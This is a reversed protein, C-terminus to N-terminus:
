RGPARGGGRAAPRGLLIFATRVQLRLEGRRRHQGIRHLHRGASVSVAPAHSRGRWQDLAVRRDGVAQTGHEVWQELAGVRTSRTRGPAAPATCCGRRWSCDRSTTPRAERGDDEVVSNYYNITNLPSILQDNWGHYMILKGGRAKFARLDPDIANLVKGVKEEGAAVDKDFDMTKWDWNPDAFVFYRYFDVAISLPQPGGVLAGWTLESGPVM